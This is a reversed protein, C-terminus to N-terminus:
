QVRYVAAGAVGSLLSRATIGVEKITSPPVYVIDGPQLPTPNAKGKQIKDLPVHIFEYGSGSARRLIRVRPIAAEPATGYALALAQLINLSGQDQMIFGGPRNVAGLVYVSGARKVFITDGPAIMIDASSANGTAADYVVTESADPLQGARHIVIENSALPTTGGVTALVEQLREAIILPVRGPNTVEGAVVISQTGYDAINVTVHPNNLIQEAILQKEIAVEVDRLMLGQVKVNGVLPIAINGGNDIRYSGDLDPEEFVHVNVMSGPMLKLDAIGEPVVSLNSPVNPAQPSRQARSAQLPSQSISQTTQAFATRSSCVILGCSLAVLYPICVFLRRNNTMSM